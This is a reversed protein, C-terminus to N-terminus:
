LIYKNFQLLFIIYCVKIFVKEAQTMNYWRYKICHEMLQLGFHRVFQSFEPRQALYLGCQVCLPSKEKFQECANYADFRHNQPAAPDMTLEVAAALQAAIVGVEADM